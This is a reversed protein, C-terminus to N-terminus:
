EEQTAVKKKFRPQSQDSSVRRKMNRAIRGLKSEKISQTYIMLRSLTMDDYLITTRCEKRVLDGVGTM